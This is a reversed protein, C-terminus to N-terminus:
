LSDLLEMMGTRELTAQYAPITQWRTRAVKLIMSKLMDKKEQKLKPVHTVKRTKGTEYKQHDIEVWVKKTNKKEM